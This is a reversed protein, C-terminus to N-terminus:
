YAGQWQKYLRKASRPHNTLDAIRAKIWIKNLKTKPTRPEVVGRFLDLATKYVKKDDGIYYRCWDNSNDNTHYLYMGGNTLNFGHNVLKGCLKCKMHMPM